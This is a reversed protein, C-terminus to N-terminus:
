RTEGRLDAVIRTVATPDHLLATGVQVARAGADLFRRVDDATSVGGAAILPVAPLAAHTQAVCRLAVPGVAPGSLGGPRGDPFAAPLAHGIVVADAGAESVARATSVVRTVDPRVKAWVQLGRPLDQCVASVVAAAREPESADLVGCGAPDPEGLDLELGVLGPARGLRRALDAYEGVTTGAISVVVRVGQQVLWPLETALFPELGPNQLGVAHVLGAPSEVIRPQPGGVRPDLTITRTVFAGVADLAGYAALERGSGACGAATMVPSALRLEGVGVPEFGSADESM